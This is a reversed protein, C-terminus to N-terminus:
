SCMSLFDEESIIPIGLSEAKKNKGSNSDPNNNILFDTNKTVSGATRGGFSEILEKIEERNKFREVKGTIVFIKGTIASQEAKPEELFRLESCLEAYLRRNQTFWEKLSQDIVRGFGDIVTFDTEKDVADLLAYAPRVDPFGVTLWSKLLKAQGKGVNPIGLAHIFQVFRINRSKEVSDRIQCFSKKGFGEMATIEKEFSGLRYFDTFEALLGKNVLATIKSESLGSIDACDREAYHALSGIKKAPCGSDLCKLHLTGNRESLSTTGSCVPCRMPLQYRAFAQMLSVAGGSNFGEDRDLNEDVAPIIKNAKYVTIHDGAKLDKQLVYSVNHLTARSVSTGELEVPEFVAVPNLLGTRSASWEIGRLVTEATEDTWKFAYGSLRCPHHGTGPQGEAYAADNATVVLGDVPYAYTGATRSYAEMVETLTQVPCTTHEVVRFGLGALVSLQKHFSDPKGNMEVLRFAQFMVPRNKLENSDYMQISANALNRPNSYKGDDPLVANVRRFDEYSMVAEGRVILEGSYPVTLPLGRIYPANHTIDRGTEGNGRTALIQLRGGSYTAVCTSGDLKWMVVAQQDRVAFVDPFAEIDKTKDLSLAPYKHRVNNLGDVVAGVNQTPSEALIFGTEKELGELRAYLSDYEKDTMIESCQNYYAEAAENLLTVLEKIEKNLNKM